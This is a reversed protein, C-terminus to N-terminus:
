AYHRIEGSGEVNEVCRGCIQPHDSNTGVTDSYHWCRDCKAKQSVTVVVNNVTAQNLTLDSVMYVFKLDAGLENLLFALWSGKFGTHGTILIPGRLRNLGKIQTCDM